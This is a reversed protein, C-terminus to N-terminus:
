PLLIHGLCLWPWFVGSIERIEEETVAQADLEDDETKNMKVIRQLLLTISLLSTLIMWRIFVVNQKRTCVHAELYTESLLGQAMGRFGSKLMPMFIGTISVHDGPQTIRTTEGRCFVTMSRPINGVPVQDSQLPFALITWREEFMHLWEYHVLLFKRTRTNKDRPVECVQLGENALLSARWIQQDHLRPKPVHDVAYFSSFQDSVCLLSRRDKNSFHCVWTLHLRTRVPQYTEAGCQDCTYTAVQMMPKVETARTVIGKVCVLKGISDAKVERIAVHKEMNKAKFYTESCFHCDTKRQNFDCM